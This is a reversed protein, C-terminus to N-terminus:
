YTTGRTATTRPQMETIRRFANAAEAYEQAQFLGVGVSMMQDATLNPMGLLEQYVTM